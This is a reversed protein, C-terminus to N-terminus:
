NFVGGEGQLGELVKKQIWSSESFLLMWKRPTKIKSLNLKSM